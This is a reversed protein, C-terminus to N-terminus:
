LHLRHPTCFSTPLSPILQLSCKQTKDNHVLPPRASGNTSANIEDLFVEEVEQNRKTYEKYWDFVLEAIRRKEDPSSESNM